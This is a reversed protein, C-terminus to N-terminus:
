EELTMLMGVYLNQCGHILLLIAIIRTTSTFNLRKLSISRRVRKFVFSEFLMKVIQELREEIDSTNMNADLTM